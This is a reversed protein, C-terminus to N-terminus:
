QRGPALRGFVYADVFREGTWRDGRLTGELVFGAREFARRGRPNIALVYAYVRHLHMREFAHRCLLDIAAAGLGRGRATPEGVVVRLEAKRHREDINWLWVNGVHRAGAAEEIAFFTCDTRTLVADFWAEHEPEAVARARNMLHALEPDNAWVRTSAM